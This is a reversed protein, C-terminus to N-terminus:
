GLDPRYIDEIEVYNEIARIVYLDLKNQCGVIIFEDYFKKLSEKDIGNQLHRGCNYYSYNNTQKLMKKLRTIDDESDPEITTENSPNETSPNETSPNETSPNETSPNETSPNETSPNETSPNETSPNETSPNETATKIPSENIKESEETSSETDTKEQETKTEETKTEEVVPKEDVSQITESAPEKTGSLESITPLEGGTEETTESESNIGGDIEEVNGGDGSESIEENKLEPIITENVIGNMEEFTEGIKEELKKNTNSGM